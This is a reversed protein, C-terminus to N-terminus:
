SQERSVIQNQTVRVDFRRRRLSLPALTEHPSHPETRGGDLRHTIVLRLANQDDFKSAPITILVQINRFRSISLQQLCFRCSRKPIFHLISKRVYLQLSLGDFGAAAPLRRWRACRGMGASASMAHPQGSFLLGAKFCTTLNQCRGASERDERDSPGEVQGDIEGIGM